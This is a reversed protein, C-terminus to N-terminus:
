LIYASNPVTAVGAAVGPFFNQGAGSSYFSSPYLILYQMDAPNTATIKSAAAGVVGTSILGTETVYCFQPKVDGGVNCMLPLYIYLSAGSIDPLYDGFMYTAREPQFYSRGRWLSTGDITMTGSFIVFGGGRIISYPSQATADPTVVFRCNGIRTDGVPRLLAARIQTTTGRLNSFTIGYIDCSKSIACELSNGGPIQYVVNAPTNVNGIIRVRSPLYANSSIPSTPANPEGFAIIPDLFETGCDLSMGGRVLPYTGDAVHINIWGSGRFERERVWTCAREITAFAGSSDNTFGKNNDNGDPRVYLDLKGSPLTFPEKEQSNTAIRIANEKSLFFLKKSLPNYVLRGAGIEDCPTVGPMVEWSVGNYREVTETGLNYVYGSPDILVIDVWLSNAQSLACYGISCANKFIVLRPDSNLDVTIVSAPVYADSDIQTTKVTFINKDRVAHLKTGGPFVSWGTSSSSTYGASTADPGYAGNGWKIVASKNAVVWQTAKAYDYCVQYTFGTGGTGRLATLTHEIGSDDVAYALVIGITDDDSDTSKLTVEHTYETYKALSVCGIHSASNSTNQISNNVSNYKWAALEDPIAPQQVTDWKHSYRYWTSFVEQMDPSYAKAQSVEVSTECVYLSKCTYDNETRSSVSFPVTGDEGAFARAAGISEPTIPDRGGTAHISSHPPVSALTDTEPLDRYRSRGDGVRIKSTLADSCHAGHRLAIIPNEKEWQARPKSEIIIQTVISGSMGSEGHLHKIDFM